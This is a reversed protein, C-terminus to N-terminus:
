AIDSRPPTAIPPKRRLLDTLIGHHASASSAPPSPEDFAAVMGKLGLGRMTDIM